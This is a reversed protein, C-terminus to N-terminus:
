DDFSEFLMGHFVPIMSNKRPGMMIRCYISSYCPRTKVIGIHVLTVFSRGGGGSIVKLIRNGLRLWRSSRQKVAHVEVKQSM